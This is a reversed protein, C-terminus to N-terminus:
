SLKNSLRASICLLKTTLWFVDALSLNVEREIILTPSRPSNWYIGTYHGFQM